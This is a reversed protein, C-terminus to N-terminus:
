CNDDYLCTCLIYLHTTSSRRGNCMNQHSMRFVWIVELRRFTYRTANWQIITWTTDIILSAGVLIHRLFLQIYWRLLCNVINLPSNSPFPECIRHCWLGSCEVLFCRPWVIHWQTIFKGSHSQTFIARVEHALVWLGMGVLGQFWWSFQHYLSLYM